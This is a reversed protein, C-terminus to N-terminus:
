SLSLYSKGIVHGVQPYLQNYVKDEKKISHRVINFYVNLLVM